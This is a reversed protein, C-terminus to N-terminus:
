RCSLAPASPMCSLNTAQDPQLVEYVGRLVQLEERGGKRRQLGAEVQSGQGAEVAGDVEDADGGVGAERRVERGVVDLGGRLLEVQLDGVKADVELVEDEVLHAGQRWRGHQRTKWEACASHFRYAHLHLQEANSFCSRCPSLCHCPTKCPLCSNQFSNPTPPPM